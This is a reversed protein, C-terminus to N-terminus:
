KGERCCRLNLGLDSTLFQEPVQGTAEFFLFREVRETSSAAMRELLNQFVAVVFATPAYEHCSHGTAAATWQDIWRRRLRSGFFRRLQLHDGFPQRFNSPGVCLISRQVYKM